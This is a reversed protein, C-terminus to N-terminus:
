FIQKRKEGSRQKRKRERWKTYKPIYKAQETDDADNETHRDNRFSAALVYCRSFCSYCRSTKIDDDNDNPTSINILDAFLNMKHIQIFLSNTFLILTLWIRFKEINLM